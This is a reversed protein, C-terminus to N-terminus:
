LWEGEWTKKRTDDNWNDHQLSQFLWTGSHKVIWLVWLGHSFLYQKRLLAEVQLFEESNETECFFIM